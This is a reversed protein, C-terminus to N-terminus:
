PNPHHEALAQLEATSPCVQESRDVLSSRKPLRRGLEAHGVTVRPTVQLLQFPRGIEFKDFATGAATRPASHTQGGGAPLEQRAVLLEAAAELLGGPAM